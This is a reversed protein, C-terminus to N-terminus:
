AGCAVDSSAGAVRKAWVLLYLGVAGLTSTIVRIVDLQVGSFLM